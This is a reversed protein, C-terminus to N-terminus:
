RPSRAHTWRDVSFAAASVGISLAVLVFGLGAGAAPRGRQDAARDRDDHHPHPRPHQRGGHHHGRGRRDGPRLRRPLGDGARRPWRSCCGWRARGRPATSSSRTATTPGSRRPRSSADPRRRDPRHPHGARDGDRRAHVPAWAGWLVQASLLLYVVLGVVVPPLGLLANLPSWCRRRGRFRCVALAAGAPAALAFALATAILSVELSLLVIGVFDPDLRVILDLALAFARGLDDM